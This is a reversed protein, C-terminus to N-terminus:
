LSYCVLLLANPFVIAMAVTAAVAIWDGIGWVRQRSDLKLLTRPWLDRTLEMKQPVKSIVSRLLYILEEDSQRM